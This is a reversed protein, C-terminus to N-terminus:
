PFSISIALVPKKKAGVFADGCLYKKAEQKFLKNLSMNGKQSANAEMTAAGNVPPTLRTPSIGFAATATGLARAM